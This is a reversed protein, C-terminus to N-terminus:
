LTQEYSNYDRRKNDEIRKKSKILVYNFAINELEFSYKYMERKKRARFKNLTFFITANLLEHDINAVDMTEDFKAYSLETVLKIGEKLECSMEPNIRSKAGSFKKGRKSMRKEGPPLRM